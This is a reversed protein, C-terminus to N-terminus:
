GIQFVHLSQDKKECRRHQDIKKKDSVVAIQNPALWAVGEANCYVVAGKAGRPL